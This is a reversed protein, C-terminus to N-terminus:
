QKSCEPQVMKNFFMELVAMKEEEFDPDFLLQQVSQYWSEPMNAAPNFYVELLQKWTKIAQKNMSPERKKYLM